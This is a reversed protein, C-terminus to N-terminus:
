TAEDRPELAREVRDRRALVAIGRDRRLPQVALLVRVRDAIQEREVDVRALEQRLVFLDLVEVVDRAAQLHRRREDLLVHDRRAGDRHARDALRVGPGAALSVRRARAVLERVHFPQREARAAADGHRM